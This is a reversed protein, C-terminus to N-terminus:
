SADNQIKVVIVDTKGKKNLMALMVMMSTLIQELNLLTIILLQCKMDIFYYMVTIM